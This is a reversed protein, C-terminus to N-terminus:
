GQTVFLVDENAVTLIAQAEYLKNIAMQTTTQPDAALMSSLVAATIGSIIPTAFSTGCWKRWGKENALPTPNEEGPPLKEDVFIGLVGDEQEGGLTAIGKRRPTDAFNSYSTTKLKKTDSPYEDSKPLAAVGVVREFAAPYRAKPREDHRKKDYDNGAAAIMRSGLSYILDCIWEMPLAQRAFWSNVGLESTKHNLIYKGITDKRNHAKSHAWGRPFTLNVSANVVYHADKFLSIITQLADAVAVLHGVGNRNLIQFLCIDAAPAISNAEGAVFLGHSIMEYDHGDVCYYEPPNTAPIPSDVNHHLFVTLRPDAPDLL